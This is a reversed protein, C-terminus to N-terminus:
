TDYQEYILSIIENNRDNGPASRLADQHTRSLSTFLLVLMGTLVRDTYGDANAMLDLMQMMIRRLEDNQGTHFLLYKESDNRYLSNMLFDGLCDEGHLIGSFINEFADPQIMITICNGDVPLTHHAPPPLIYLDGTNFRKPHQNILHTDNGSLVYVMEFFNHTHESQFIAQNKLVIINHKFEDTSQHVDQIYQLISEWTIVPVFRKAAETDLLDNLLIQNDKKNTM